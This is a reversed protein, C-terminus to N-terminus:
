FAKRITLFLQQPAGTVLTQSDGSNVFGNTGLTGVYDEDFINTANLQVELGELIPNGSFRYGLTADVITRGEVNGGNNTFTFFRDGLYNAGLSGFVGGNDYVIEAFAITDPTNVVKKGATAALVAGARNVVDDQYRSDNFTFAGFLTIDDNVLVSGVLEIGKTEVSGVNSIVPANGVIGPGQSVALLRDDFTVFYAAAGLQVLDNSYRLGAEFTESSEPDVSAIVEDVVLQSRSSFPGATAASVFAATNQSYSGFVETQDSVQYNFGAQPLFSEETEITAVLNSNTGVVPQANNIILTDVSNEVNLSKFGGNLKLKDTVQWTDQIFFQVTQTDFGYGWQTFFPNDLFGLFDRTPGNRNESYFRRYQEFDNQELWVGGQIEHNGVAYTVSGILGKRDIDYETTRVSLPANATTAGPTLANPSILYPTGWLGQGKNQHSYGQVRLDLGEALPWDLAIYALDDDRVGAANWYADDATAIPAPYVLGAGANTVPQGTDGRNHAIDAVLVAVDFNSDGFNDWNYGLRDIMGLSLDQYDQERRESHSYYGTLTAPGVPQVVKLGYQDQNQEGDGKYKGMESTMASVWARTGLGEIEGTDIRGFLRLTNDSGTTAAGLVGFEDAADVSSFKLAGGLNGSSAVDLAGSGQALTVGGLNESILARSIHLGNHNGYSMDGLPVGDLTFGLQNQSFGRINIRVAWEYAGFPDAGSVAVGPLRQVVKIPSTGPAQFELAESSVSQTQRVEGSGIVVVADLVRSADAAALDEGAEAAAQGHASLATTMALVASSLLFQLKMIAGDLFLNRLHFPLWSPHLEHEASTAESM